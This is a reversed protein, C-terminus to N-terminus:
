KLYYFPLGRRFGMGKGGERIIVKRLESKMKM